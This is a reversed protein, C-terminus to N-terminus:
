SNTESWPAPEDVVQGSLSLYATSVALPNGCPDKALDLPSASSKKAQALFTVGDMALILCGVLKMM